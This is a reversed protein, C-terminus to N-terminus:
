HIHIEIGNSTFLTWSVELYFFLLLPESELDITFVSTSLRIKQRSASTRNFIVYPTNHRTTVATINFLMLVHLFDIIENEGKHFSRILDSRLDKM